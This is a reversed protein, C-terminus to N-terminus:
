LGGAIWVVPDCAALAAAAAHPNTAKSDDIWRVGDAEAVLRSRHDGPAHRRLGDRVAGTPVDVSRALAAAALADAIHHPGPTDTGVAHAVDELGSLEAASSYRQPIYARDVLVDEVVGVEGPGP